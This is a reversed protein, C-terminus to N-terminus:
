AEGLPLWVTFTAGQGEASQVAIRGGYAEVLGRVITLGVGSGQQERRRRGVQRFSEFITPQLEEPIGIGKDAIAMCWFQGDRGTTVRVPYDTGKSFKVANSVLRRVIDALHQGAAAITLDHGDLEMAFSVGESSAKERFEAIVQEVTRDPNHTALPTSKIEQVLSGSNLRSLTLFDEVLTALRQAGEHLGQLTKQFSQQDMEQGIDELLETYGVVLALPTRFEHTLTQVISQKLDAAAEDIAAQAEAARELRVQVARILEEPEFPKVLYDDAGLEMGRRIDPRQSKATLFIFPIRSWQESQLLHEYFDFGSMGPMMIDSVILSPNSTTLTELAAEACDAALVKYNVDELIFTIIELMNPDDEIVLITPQFAVPTV